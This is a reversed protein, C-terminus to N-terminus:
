RRTGRSRSSVSGRGGRDGYQDNVSLKWKMNGRQSM